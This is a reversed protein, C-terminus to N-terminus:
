DIVIYKIEEKKKDDDDIVIYEIEKQKNNQNDFYQDVIDATLVPLEHNAKESLMVLIEIKAEMQECLEGFNKEQLISNLEDM